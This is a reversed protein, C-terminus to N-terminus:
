SDDSHQRVRIAAYVLAAGVAVGIWLGPSALLPFEGIL